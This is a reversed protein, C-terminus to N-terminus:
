QKEKEEAPQDREGAPRDRRPRDARSSGEGRRTGVPRFARLEDLEVSGDKNTDLADFRDQLVPPLEDKSFKGDNNKDMGRLRDILTGPAAGGPRGVLGGTGGSPLLEERSLEGDNNKDLKKLAAVAGEIESKSLKGDGDSDLARMVSLGGAFLGLGPRDGGLPAPRGRDKADAANADGRPRDQVGSAFEQATLKGDGDKDAARILREFLRQRDDPVEDLTVNGDNDKDLRKFLSDSEGSVNRDSDQAHSLGAVLAALLTASTVLRNM